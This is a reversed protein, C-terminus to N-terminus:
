LFYLHSKVRPMKLMQLLVLFNYIYKLIYWNWSFHRDVKELFTTTANTFMKVSLLQPHKWFDLHLVEKIYMHYLCTSRDNHIRIINLVHRSTLVDQHAPETAAHVSKLPMITFEVLARRHNWVGRLFSDCVVLCRRLSLSLHPTPLLIYPSHFLPLPPHLSLPPLSLSSNFSIFPFLSPPYLPFLSISFWDSLRASLFLYESLRGRSWWLAFEM